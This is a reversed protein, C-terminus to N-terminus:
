RLQEAVPEAEDDGDDAADDDADYALEGPAYYDAESEASAV